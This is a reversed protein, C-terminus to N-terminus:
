GMDIWGALMTWGAGIMGGSRARSGSVVGGSGITWGPEIWRAGIM